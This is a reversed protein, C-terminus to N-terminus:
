AKENILDNLKKKEDDNCLEYFKQYHMQLDYLSNKVDKFEKFMNGYYAKFHYYGKKTIKDIIALDGTNRNTICDCEKFKAEIM